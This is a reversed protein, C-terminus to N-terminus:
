VTKVGVSSWTRPSERSAVSSFSTRLSLTDSEVDDSIVLVPDPSRLLTGLVVEYMTVAVTTCVSTGLSADVIVFM